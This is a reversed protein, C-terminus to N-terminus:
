CRTRGPSRSGHLGGRPVRVQQRHLCVALHPQPRGLAAASRRCRALASTSPAARAAHAEAAGARDADLIDSLMDGLFVSIIAPPAENAGLRHDNGAAAICARLLDAHIDVARICRVAPLGPVAHQHPHRGAPRAPQRRHRDGDVLQQAQRQWQRRRVAERAAAGLGHRDAVRRLMEMTLMQHDSAISRWRSSRRSRTSGRRWKTTARRSRCASASSSRARVRGYLGARSRSHRRLLPRGAAAGQAPPRRLADARLDGPRSAAYFLERDILFYEQEPGVTTIVRSVGADTGFFKLIRMAQKSLAEM